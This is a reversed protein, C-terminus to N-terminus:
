APVNKLRDIEDHTKQLDWVMEFTEQKGILGELQEIFNPHFFVKYPGKSKDPSLPPDKVSACGWCGLCNIRFPLPFCVPDYDTKYREREQNYDVGELHSIGDLYYKLPPVSSGYKYYFSWWPDFLRSWVRSVAKRIKNSFM